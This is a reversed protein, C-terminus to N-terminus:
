ADPADQQYKAVMTKLQATFAALESVSNTTHRIGEVWQNAVGSVEGMAAVIQDTGTHQQQTALSIQKASNTTNEISQVILTFAREAEGAREVGDKTARMGSENAMVTANTAETVEGILQKIEATSQFVNEALRRMEAAVLLFGKGADGAKTGELAANLALLDSRDAIDNILEVVGRIQQVQRNLRLINDNITRNGNEISTMSQVFSSLSQRGDTVMNAAQEAAKTVNESNNAIQRATAALEEMTATIESVTAAQQAAGSEQQKATTLIDATRTDILESLETFKATLEIISHTMDGFAIALDGKGELPRNLNGQSIARAHESLERMQSLLANFASALQGIEDGSELDLPEQSLDGESMKQFTSTMAGLHRAIRHGFLFALAAGLVFALLGILAGTQWIRAEEANFKDLSYAMRLVGVLSDDKAIAAVVFLRDQRFEITPPASVRPPVLDPLEADNFGTLKEGQADEVRISILDKDNKASEVVEEIPSTQMTIAAADVAAELSWCLMNTVSSVKAQLGAKLVERQNAAFVWLIGIVTLALIICTTGAVKWRLKLDKMM